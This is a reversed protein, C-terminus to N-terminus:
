FVSSRLGKWLEKMRKNSESSREWWMGCVPILAYVEKSATKNSLFKAMLIYFFFYKEKTDNHILTLEHISM